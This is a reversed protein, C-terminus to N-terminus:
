LESLIQFLRCILTIACFGKNEADWLVNRRVHWFFVANKRKKCFDSLSCAKTFFFRLIFPSVRVFRHSTIQTKLTSLRVFHTRFVMLFCMFHQKQARKLTFRQVLCAEVWEYPVTKTEALTVFEGFCLVLVYSCYEWMMFHKKKERRWFNRYHQLSDTLVTINFVKGFM